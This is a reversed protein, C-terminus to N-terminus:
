DMKRITTEDTTKIAEVLEKTEAQSNDVVKFETEELVVKSLVWGKPKYIKEFQERSVINTITRKQGVFKIEVSENPNM